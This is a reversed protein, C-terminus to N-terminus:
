RSVVCSGTPTQVQVKIPCPHAEATGHIAAEDALESIASNITTPIFSATM